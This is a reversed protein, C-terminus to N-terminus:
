FNGMVGFVVCANGGYRSIRDSEERLRRIMYRRNWIGTLPDISAEEERQALLDYLTWFGSIYDILLRYIELESSSMGSPKRIEVAGASRNQFFIPSVRRTELGDDGCEVFPSNSLVSKMVQADAESIEGGGYGTLHALRPADTGKKGGVFLYVNCASGSITTELYHLMERLLQDRNQAHLLSHVLDHLKQLRQTHEREREALLDLEAAHKKQLTVDTGSFIYNVINGDYDLIFSLGYDVIVREGDRRIFEEETHFRHDERNELKLRLREMLSQGEGEHSVASLSMIPIGQLEAASCGLVDCFAQNVDMIKGSEDTVAMAGPANQFIVSLRTESKRISEKAQSHEDIDLLGGMARVPKGGAFEAFASRIAFWRWRGQVSQIRFEMSFPEKRSVGGGPAYFGEMKRKFASADDPHLLGLFGGFTSVNKGFLLSGDPTLSFRNDAFHWEWCCGGATEMMISALTDSVALRERAKLWLLFMAVFSVYLVSLVWLAEGASSPLLAYLLCALLIACLVTKQAIKAFSVSLDKKSSKFASLRSGGNGGYGMAPDM